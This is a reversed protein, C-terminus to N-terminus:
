TSYHKIFEAYTVDNNEWTMFGKKVNITVKQKLPMIFEEDEDDNQDFSLYINDNFRSHSIIIKKNLIIQGNSHMILYAKRKNYNLEGIYIMMGDIQSLECFEDSAIWLGEYFDNYNKTSKYKQVIIILVLVIIVAILIKINM